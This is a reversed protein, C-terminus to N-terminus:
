RRGLMAQPLNFASAQAKGYRTPQALGTAERFEDLLRMEGFSYGHEMELRRVIERRLLPRRKSDIIL